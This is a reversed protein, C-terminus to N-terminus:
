KNPLFDYAQVDYNYKRKRFLMMDSFNFKTSESTDQTSASHCVTRCQTNVPHCLRVTYVNTVAYGRVIVNHVEPLM